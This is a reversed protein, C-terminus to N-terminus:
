SYNYGMNLSKYSIVWKYSGIFRWTFRLGRLGIGKSGGVKSTGAWRGFDKTRMSKFGLGKVGVQLKM